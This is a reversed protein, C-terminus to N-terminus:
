LKLNQSIDVEREIAAQIKTLIKADTWGALNQNEEQGELKPGCNLQKTM